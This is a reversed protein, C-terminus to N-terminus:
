SHVVRFGLGSGPTYEMRPSRRERICLWDTLTCTCKRLNVYMYMWFQLFGHVRDIVCAYMYIYAFVDKYVFFIPECIWESLRRYTTIFIYKCIHATCVCVCMFM